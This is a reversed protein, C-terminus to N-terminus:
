QGGIQAIVHGNALNVNPLQKDTHPLSVDAFTGELVGDSGFSEINIQGPGAWERGQEDIYGFGVSAMASAANM